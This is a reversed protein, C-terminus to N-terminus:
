WAIRYLRRVLRIHFRGLYAANADCSEAKADCSKFLERMMFKFINDFAM